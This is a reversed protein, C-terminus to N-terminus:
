GVPVILGSSVLGLARKPDPDYVEIQVEEGPFALYVSNPQTRNFYVVGDGPASALVGNQEKSQKRLAQAAEPFAYTGVTLFDASEDGAEAGDTLYRVYTQGEQPRSLEIETGEQEGAWYIPEAAESATESLDDVSVIEASTTEAGTTDGDDDGDDILTIILLIALVGLVAWFAARIM